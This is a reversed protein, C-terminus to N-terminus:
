PQQVQQSQLLYRALSNGQRAAQELWYRAKGPDKAIPGRGDTYIDVLLMQAEQNASDAARTLWMVGERTADPDRRGQADVAMEGALQYGMWLQALSYGHSASKRYWATAQHLDGPFGEWGLETLWGMQYEAERDGSEAVPLLLKWATAYRGSSQAKLGLQKQVELDPEDSLTEIKEGTEAAPAPAAGLALGFLLLLHRLDLTM